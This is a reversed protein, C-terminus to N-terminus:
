WLSSPSGLPWRCNPLRAPKCRHLGLPCSPAPDTVFTRFISDPSCLTTTPILLAVNITGRHVFCGKHGVSSFVESNPPWGILAHCHRDGLVESDSMLVLDTTQEVTGHPLGLWGTTYSGTSPPHPLDQSQGLSCISGLESRWETALFFLCM